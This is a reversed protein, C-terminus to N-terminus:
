DLTLEDCTKNEFFAPLLRSRLEFFRSWRPSHRRSCLSCGSPWCRFCSLLRSASTAIGRILTFGLILFVLFPKALVQLVNSMRHFMFDLRRNKTKMAKISDRSNKPERNASDKSNTRLCREIAPKCVFNLSLSCVIGLTALVAWIGNLVTIFRWLISNLLIVTFCIM